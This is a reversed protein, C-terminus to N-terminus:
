KYRECHLHKTFNDPIIFEAYYKAKLVGNDADKSDTFVWKVKSDSKLKNAISNGINKNEGEITAGKDNNVVAVSIESLHSAPDWYAYLFIFAYLAPVLTILVIVITQMIIKRKM